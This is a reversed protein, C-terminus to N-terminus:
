CNQIKKKLEKNAINLFTIYFQRIRKLSDLESIIKKAIYIQYFFLLLSFVIIVVSGVLYFNYSKKIM